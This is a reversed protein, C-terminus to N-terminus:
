PNVVLPSVLRMTKGTGGLQIREGSETDYAGAWVYYRGPPLDAPITLRQEDLVISPRTWTEWLTTPFKGECQTRWVNWTGYAGHRIDEVNREPAAPGGAQPLRAGAEHSAQGELLRSPMRRNSQVDALRHEQIRQELKRKGILRRGLAFQVQKVPWPATADVRYEALKSISMGAM